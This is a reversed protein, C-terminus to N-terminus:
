TTGHALEVAFLLLPQLAEHAADLGALGGVSQRAARGTGRGRRRNPRIRQLIGGLVAGDRGTALQDGFLGGLARLMREIAPVFDHRAGLRALKGLAGIDQQCFIVTQEIDRGRLVGEHAAQTDGVADQVGPLEAPQRVCRFREAAAIGVHRRARVQLDALDARTVRDIQQRRDLGHPEGRAARAGVIDAVNGATRRGADVRLLKVVRAREAAVHLEVDEIM